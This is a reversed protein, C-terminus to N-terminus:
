LKRDFVRILVFIWIGAVFIAPLMWFLANERIAMGIWFSPLISLCYCVPKPVFYPVVAELIMDKMLRSNTPDLGSAPEDLFLLKPDHVLAKIFNLRSKMGKSYDSVRKDADIELGVMHLLEDISRTQRQYSTDAHTLM